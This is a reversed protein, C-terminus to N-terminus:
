DRTVQEFVLSLYDFILIRRSATPEVREPDNVPCVNGDGELNHLDAM